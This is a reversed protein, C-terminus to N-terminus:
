APRFLAELGTIVDEMLHDGGAGSITLSAAGHAAAWIALAIQEVPREREQQAAVRAVLGRLNDLAAERPEAVTPLAAITPDFMLGYLAPQRHAFDFYTLAWARLRGGDGAARDAQELARRLDAFGSGALEGLLETKGAYHHYVSGATIGARAALARLNLGALGETELAARAAEILRARLNGVHYHRREDLSMGIM